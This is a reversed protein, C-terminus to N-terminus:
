PLPTDPKSLNTDWIYSVRPMTIRKYALQPIIKLCTLFTEFYDKRIYKKHIGTIKGNTWSYIQLNHIAQSLFYM